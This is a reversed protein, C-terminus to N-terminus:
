FLETVQFGRVWISLDASANGVRYQLQQTSDVGCELTNVQLVYILPSANYLTSAIFESTKGAEGLFAGQPSNQPAAGMSLYAGFSGRRSIAPILGSASFTTDTTASGSFLVNYNLLGGSSYDTNKYYIWSNNVYSFDLINSSGDNRLAFKLQRKKTYGSPLTISGTVKENVTSLIGRVNGTTPDKIAYLYYWTNAAEAGADRGNAGTVTIDITQDASFVLDTTDDSSRCRSGTLIKIQSVSVWEIKVDHYNPDQGKPLDYWNTGDSYQLIGSNYRIAGAGANSATATSTGLKISNTLSVSNESVGLNGTFTASSISPSSTLTYGTGNGVLIQGSSPTSAIGTGGNALTLVGSVNGGTDLALPKPFQGQFASDSM